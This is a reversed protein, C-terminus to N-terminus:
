TKTKNTLLEYFYGKEVQTIFLARAHGESMIIICPNFLDNM